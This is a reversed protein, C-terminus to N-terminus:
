SRRRIGRRAWYAASMVFSVMSASARINNSGSCTFTQGARAPFTWADVNERPFIRGNITVPLQVAVPVTDGDIEQEVIEPMDGVM